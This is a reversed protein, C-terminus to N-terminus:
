SGSSTRTWTFRTVSRDPSIVGSRAGRRILTLPTPIRQAVERRTSGIGRVAFDAPVGTVVHSADMAAEVVADAGRPLLLPEAILGGIQQVLLSATALLRSADGEDATRGANSGTLVLPVNAEAALTVALELAAWDHDTGAFPVIVPGDTRGGERALHLAVDCPASRLIALPLGDRGDVLPAANAVVLGVEQRLALKEVAAGADAARFAAVRASVASDALRDRFGALVRTAPLVDDQDDVVCTLIV